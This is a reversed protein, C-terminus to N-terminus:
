HISTPDGRSETGSHPELGGSAVSAGLPGSVVRYDVGLEGCLEALETLTELSASPIAILVEDVRGSAVLTSLQERSGLVALGHIRRERKAPDDDLFGIATMALTRNKRLERLVMEGADGAGIIIIQRDSKGGRADAMAERLARVAVRAGGAFICMLLWDLVFASRSFGEFRYLLTLTLVVMLSSLSVAKFVNILDKVGTYRWMSRYLGFYWFAVLRWVITWPIAQRLPGEVLAPIAGEYRLLHASYLALCILVFDLGIELVRQKHLLLGSLILREQASRQLGEAEEEPYVKIQGIFIGFIAVAVLALLTLAVAVGVPLSTAYLGFAGFAAAIGYLIFVTRRESLGFAVLRHSTHDRGGEHVPRRALLRSVTVMSTDLIPVALVLAPVLLTLVVNSMHQATGMITILALAFGLTMSGTDGMFIRAPSINYPLFGVAAGALALALGAVEGLGASAASIAVIVSCIAAVGAALGDMNDLLNFANTIGVIWLITLPVALLGFRELSFHIGASYAAAALLIQVLLKIQPKAGWLDDWLGLGAAALVGLLLVVMPATPAAVVAPLSVVAFAAVIAIGGLLPTPRAHWREPHPTAVKGHRRALSRVWPVLLASIVAAAAFYALLPGLRVTEAIMSM